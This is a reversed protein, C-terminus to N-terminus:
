FKNMIAETSKNSLIIMDGIVFLVVKTKSHFFPLYGLYRYKLARAIKETQYLCSNIYEAHLFKVVIM